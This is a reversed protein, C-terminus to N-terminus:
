TISGDKNPRPIPPLRRGNKPFPNYVSQMLQEKKEQPISLRDKPKSGAIDDVMNTARKEVPSKHQKPLNGDISGMTLVHRRSATQMQYTPNQPDTVRKTQFKVHKPSDIDKVDLKTDKINTIKNQKM